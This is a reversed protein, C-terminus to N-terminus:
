TRPAQTIFQRDGAVLGADDLILFQMGAAAVEAGDPGLM